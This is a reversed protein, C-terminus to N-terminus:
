ISYDRERTLANTQRSACSFPSVASLFEVVFVYYVLFINQFINVGVTINYYCLM